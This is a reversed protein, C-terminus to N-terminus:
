QVFGAMPHRPWDRRSAPTAEKERVRMKGVSVAIQTRLPAAALRVVTAACELCRPSFTTHRPLDIVVCVPDSVEMHAPVSASDFELLIGSRSINVVKGALAEEGPSARCVRCTLRLNFRQGHRQEM